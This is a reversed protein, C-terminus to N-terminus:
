YGRTSAIEDQIETLLQRAKTSFEDNWNQRQLYYQLRELLTLRTVLRVEARANRLSQEFDAFTKSEFEFDEITNM